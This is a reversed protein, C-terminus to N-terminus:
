RPWRPAAVVTQGPPRVGDADGARREVAEHGQAAHARQMRAHAHMGLVGGRHHVEQGLMGADLAHVVRAQGVMRAVLNRAALLAAEAGHQAELELPAFRRDFGEEVPSSHKVRASDRPPTSLRMECGALMVWAPMSSDARNRAPMPEPSSRTETPMSSGASRTASRHRRARARPESGLWCRMEPPVRRLGRARAPRRRGSRGAARGRTEIARSVAAEVARAESELQLSYRLLLAASLIARTRIPSAAAPSTRRPDMSPSSCAAACAQAWAIRVAVVGDLGGADLSRRHSHRRVHKGHRDRRLRAAAELSAHRGFGGAHTRLEVDPFEGPMIREVVSRWLRSTELVNAKDISTLSAAARVRWDRGRAARRARDGGGIYRCVDVAETATRSKDGFYIGGTLERVVMIDVGRLIEAKIPSADLVAPHPVVPRLNAFLGLAKRLQLLGQEPRVAADPAPGSRVASRAWCFRMRASRWRWRRRRCRRARRM